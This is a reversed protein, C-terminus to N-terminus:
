CFRKVIREEATVVKWLPLLQWEMFRSGVGLQGSHFEEGVHVRCPTEWECLPCLSEIQKRREWGHKERVEVHSREDRKVGM